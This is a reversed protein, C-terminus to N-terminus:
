VPNVKYIRLNKIRLYRQNATSFYIFCYITNISYRAYYTFVNPMSNSFIEFNLNGFSGACYATDITTCNTEISFTAKLSDNTNLVNFFSTDKSQTGSGYLSLSDMTFVLSDNNVSPPNGNGGTPIDDSGCAVLGVAAFMALMVAIIIVLRKRLTFPNLISRNMFLINQKCLFVFNVPM